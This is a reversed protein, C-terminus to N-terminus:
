DMGKEEDEPEGGVIRVRWCKPTIRFKGRNKCCQKDRKAYCTAHAFIPPTAPITRGAPKGDECTLYKCKEEIM